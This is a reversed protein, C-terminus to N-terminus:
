DEKGMIIQQYVRMAEVPDAPLEVVATVIPIGDPQGGHNVDIKDGYKKPTAKAMLWKRADIRLKRHEIMDFRTVKEGSMESWETREGVQPTDSIQKIEEAWFESRDSIARTYANAFEENARRWHFITTHGPMDDGLNHVTAGTAIRRCIEDSLEQTLVFAPAGGKPGSPATEVEIPRM